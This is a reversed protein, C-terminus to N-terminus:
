ALLKGNAMSPICPAASSYLRASSGGGGRVVRAHSSSKNNRTHTHMFAAIIHHVGGFKPRERTAAAATAPTTTGEQEHEPSLSHVFSRHAHASNIFSPIHIKSHRRNDDTGPPSSRRSETYDAHIARLFFRWCTAAGLFKVVVAAAAIIPAGSSSLNILRIWERPAKRLM